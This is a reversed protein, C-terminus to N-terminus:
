NQVFSALVYPSSISTGIKQEGSEGPEGIWCKEREDVDILDKVRFDLFNDIITGDKRELRSDSGVLIANTEESTLLIAFTFNKIQNFYMDVVDDRQLGEKLETERMVFNVSEGVLDKMKGDRGLGLLGKGTVFMEGYLGYDVIEYDRENLIIKRLDDKRKNLEEYVRDDFETGTILFTPEQNGVAQTITINEHTGLEKYVQLWKWSSITDTPSISSNFYVDKGDDLLKQVLLQMVEVKMSMSSDLKVIEYDNQNQDIKSLFSEVVNAGHEDDEFHDYFVVVKSKGINEVKDKHYEYFFKNEFTSLWPLIMLIIILTFLDWKQPKLKKTINMHIEGQM